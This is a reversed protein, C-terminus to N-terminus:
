KYFYSFNLSLNTLTKLEKLATGLAFLGQDSIKM